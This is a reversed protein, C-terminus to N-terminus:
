YAGTGKLWAEMEQAERPTGTSLQIITKGKLSSVQDALVSRQLRHIPSVPTSSGGTAPLCRCPPPKDSCAMLAALDDGCGDSGPKCGRRIWGGRSGSVCRTVCRAIAKTDGRRWVEAWRSSSKSCRPIGANAWRVEAAAERPLVGLENADSLVSPIDAGTRRLRRRPPRRCRNRRRHAVGGAGGRLPRLQDSPTDYLM